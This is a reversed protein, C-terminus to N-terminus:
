DIWQVLKYNKAQILASGVFAGPLDQFSLVADLLHNEYYARTTKLHFGECYVQGHVTGQHEISGTCYVQGMIASGKELIMQSSKTGMKEDHIILGGKVTSNEGIYIYSPNLDKNFAGVISPYDLQVNDGVIISDTAFLQFCGNYDDAVGAKQCFIIAGDIKAGPFIEVLGENLIIINGKISVNDLILDGNNYLLLPYDSHSNEISGFKAYSQFPELINSQLGQDYLWKHIFSFKQPNIKPLARGSRKIKGYVIQEGSYNKGEIHARKIGLGPLYATGKIRSDGSLSIYRSKDTIYLAMSDGMQLNEGVLALRSYSYSKWKSSVCIIDYMGWHRKFYSVESPTDKFLSFRITDNYPILSPDKMTLLLGSEVITQLNDKGIDNQVIRRSFSSSLIILGCFLSGIFSIFIAYYLAGGKIM